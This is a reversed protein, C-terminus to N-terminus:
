GGVTAGGGGSCKRACVCADLALGIIFLVVAFSSDLGALFGFFSGLFILVTFPCYEGMKVIGQM